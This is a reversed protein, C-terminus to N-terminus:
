KKHCGIILFHLIAVIGSFAFLLMVITVFTDYHEM